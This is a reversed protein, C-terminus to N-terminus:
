ASRQIWFINLRNFCSDPPSPLYGPTSVMRISWPVSDIASMLALTVSSIAPPTSVVEM